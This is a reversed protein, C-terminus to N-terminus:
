LGTADAIIVCCPPVIVLKESTASVVDGAKVLIEIVPVGDHSGIDPVVVKVEAM